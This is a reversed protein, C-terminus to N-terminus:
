GFREDYQLAYAPIPPEEDVMEPMSYGGWGGQSRGGFSGYQGKTYCGAQAEALLADTGLEDALLGLTLDMVVLDTTGITLHDVPRGPCLATVDVNLAGDLWATASPDNAAPQVLEDTETFISAYSVDGPTEDGLNVHHNFNSDRRFQWLVPSRSGSDGFPLPDAVHAADTGHNPGAHLVVDDLAARVTNPWYKIAWRPMAAGQSHGVLDVKGNPSLAALQQVAYAVYEASITMDVSGREPYTITCSPIGESALRATYNWRYQEDGTTTTGHVLLVPEVDPDSYDNAPDCRLSEAFTPFGERETLPPDVYADAAPQQKARWGNATAHDPPAALAAPAAVLAAALTLLLGRSVRHM